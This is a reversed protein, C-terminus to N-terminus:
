CRGPPGASRSTRARGRRGGPRIPARERLAAADPDRQEVLRARRPMPMEVNTETPLLASRDPLSRRCYQSSSGRM